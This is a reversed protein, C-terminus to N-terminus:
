PRSLARREVLTGILAILVGAVSMALGVLIPSLYGLGVALAVGGLGAGLSNGINLASHNLAAGITLSERALDQLRVQIAPSLAAASAGILLVSGFLGVPSGATLALLALSAVIAGFFVYLARTPGRDILLGALSNGLTMGVGFVILVAPVVAQPLGTVGTTIPAIYTYASFLGGFGVAGTLMTIWVMPKTFVRLENGVTATPDGPRGPVLLLVAAFTAAFAGAIVLYATRWGAQQGIFTFAPVGVVNAITLGSLVFAAARGRSGPGMLEAAVLSAMGFYAGHPLGSVFRAAIVLGFSPLVATLVTAGVIVALLVLLLRKHSARAALAAITPAGVVVGAAYASVMVGSRAVAASHSAHWVDPLLDAAIQPLLGLASFETAGIAFGGLSLALLAAVM